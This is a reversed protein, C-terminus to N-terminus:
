SFGAFTNVEVGAKLRLVEEIWNPSTAIPVATVLDMVTVELPFAGALMVESEVLPAPKATEPPM